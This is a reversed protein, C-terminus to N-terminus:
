TSAENPLRGDSARRLISANGGVTGVYMSMSDENSRKGDTQSVLNALV